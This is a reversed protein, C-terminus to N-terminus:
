VGTSVVKFYQVPQFKKVAGAGCSNSFNKGSRGVLSRFRGTFGGLGHGCWEASNGNWVRGQRQTDSFWQFDM